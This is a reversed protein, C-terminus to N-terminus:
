PRFALRAAGILALVLSLAYALTITLSSRHTPLPGFPDGSDSMKASVPDAMAHLGFLVGLGAVGAVLLLVLIAINRIM